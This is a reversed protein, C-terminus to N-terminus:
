GDLNSCFSQRSIDLYGSISSHQHALSCAFCAFCAFLQPAMQKTAESTDSSSSSTQTHTHTRAHTRTGVDWCTYLIDCLSSISVGREETDPHTPLGYPSIAADIDLALAVDDDDLM